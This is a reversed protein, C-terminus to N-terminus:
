RGNGHNGGLQHAKSPALEFMKKGVCVKRGVHKTLYGWQSLEAPVELIKEEEKSLRKMCGLNVEFKHNKQWLRQSSLNGCGDVLYEKNVSEKM